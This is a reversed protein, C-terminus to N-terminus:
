QQTKLLLRLRNRGSTHDYYQADSFHRILGIGRGGLSTAALTAAPPPVDHATPDFAIGDDEVAICLQDGTSSLHIHIQGNGGQPYGHQIINSATETILLDLAFNLPDSLAWARATQAVWRELEVLADLRNPIRLQRQDM